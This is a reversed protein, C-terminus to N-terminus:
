RGGPKQFVHPPFSRVICCNVVLLVLNNSTTLLITGVTSLKLLKDGGGGGLRDTKGKCSLGESGLAAMMSEPLVHLEMWTRTGTVFMTRTRLHLCRTTAWGSPDSM